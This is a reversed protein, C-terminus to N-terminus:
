YTYEICGNETHLISKMRGFFLKIVRGGWAHQLHENEIVVKPAQKPDVFHFEILEGTHVNAGLTKPILVDVGISNVRAGQIESSIVCLEGRNSLKGNLISSETRKCQDDTVHFLSHLRDMSVTFPQHRQLDGYLQQFALKGDNGMLAEKFPQCLPSGIECETPCAVEGFSLDIPIFSLAIVLLLGIRANM